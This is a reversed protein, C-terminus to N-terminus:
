YRAIEILNGETDKFQFCRYPYRTFPLDEPESIIECDWKKVKAFVADVDNAWFVPVSNNGTMRKDSIIAPNILGFYCGNGMDFDAWTNGERHAAEVWLLDEYFEVARDMNQVSVYVHDLRIIIGSSKM